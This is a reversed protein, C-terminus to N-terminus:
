NLQSHTRNDHEGIKKLEHTSSKESVKLERKEGHAEVHIEIHTERKDEHEENEEIEDKSEDELEDELEDEHSEDIDHDESDEVKPSPTPTTSPTTIPTPTPSLIPGPTPTTTGPTPAVPPTYIYPSMRSVNSGHQGVFVSTMDTACQFFGAPGTLTTGQPGSHMTGLPTVDYQVGLITIICKDAPTAAFIKSMPSTKYLTFSLAVSSLALSTVMVVNRTSFGQSFM